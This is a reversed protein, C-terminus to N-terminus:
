VKILDVSDLHLPTNFVKAKEALMSVAIVQELADMDQASIM